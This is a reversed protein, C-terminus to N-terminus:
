LVSAGILPEDDGRSLVTGHVIIDEAQVQLVAALFLLIALLTTKKM